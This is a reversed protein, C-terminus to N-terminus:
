SSRFFCITLSLNKVTNRDQEKGVQGGSLLGMYLHYIYAVLLYPDREEVERLRDLYARVEPRVRYGRKWNVGLYHGLDQEIAEARNMVEEMRLEGVLSDRRRESAEELFRFVEYFVMLGEAWVQDNSLALGLKLNVLHDSITHIERTSRRLDASLSSSSSKKQSSVPGSM